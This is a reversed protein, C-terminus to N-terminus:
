DLPARWTRMGEQVFAFEEVVGGLERMAEAVRHKHRYDCYFLIYGGGGAGTVKGGLAGTERATAYMADIADTTIRPSMRKKAQWARDLLAGFESLRGRLLADKMDVALEKQLRLGALTEEEGGEFRSTQDDIIRSSERTRGTYCLLMNHELEHVTDPSVRLPNVVVRDAGMEIFNFGGFTASYQDQLGGKIGLEEREIRYALEAVEYDTLPLSRFEKLLGVLAVMMTSSSGLGSGPPANSHLLLEFGSGARGVIERIAAKALDLKGDFVLRDDVGYTATQGFDVSEIQIQEDARPRLTGYAFRNITANLVLGGEREPFPPVDTGGGAFSIRLPAKARILSPVAVRRV